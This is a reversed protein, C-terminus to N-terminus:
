TWRNSPGGRFEARMQLLPDFLPSHSPDNHYYARVVQCNISGRNIYNKESKQLPKAEEIQKWMRTPM